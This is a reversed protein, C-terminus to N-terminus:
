ESKRRNRMYWIVGVIVLILIVIPGVPFRHSAAAFALDSPNM